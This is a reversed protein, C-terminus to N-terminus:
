MGHGILAFCLAVFTAHKLFRTSSSLQEQRGLQTGNIEPWSPIRNKNRRRKQERLEEEVSDSITNYWRGTLSDVVLSTEEM